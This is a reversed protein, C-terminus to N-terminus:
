FTEILLCFDLTAWVTFFFIIVIKDKHIVGVSTDLHRALTKNRGSFFIVLLRIFRKTYSSFHLGAFKVTQRFVERM